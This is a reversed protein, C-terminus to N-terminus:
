SGLTGASGCEELEIEETALVVEAMEIRCDRYTTERACPIHTLRASM